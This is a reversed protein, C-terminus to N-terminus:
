TVPHILMRKKADQKIYYNMKGTKNIKPVTIVFQAGQGQKGTEQIVWGYTECIKRILYLGYGTGKGYGETFILEKESEPIGIGNDEYILKLQNKEEKYYIRLQNAYESYKITDDILNYLLQRLLSDSLLTLDECENVVKLGNLGHLMTVEQVFKKVDIYELEEIGLMEYTKAFDFIQEVKDIAEEINNLHEITQSDDAKTKLKTLYVSNAIVALKNRVDHRTFKGVVSLKENTIKLKNQSEELNTLMKNIEDALNTIEDNKGKVSVKKLHKRQSKSIEKVSSNLQALRSLITKELFLIIVISFTIGTFLLLLVFYTISSNGQNYIDRPLLAEIVFCSEGYIDEFLAYGAIINPTLTKLITNQEESFDVFAEQFNNSTDSNTFHQLSLKLQTTEALSELQISDFYRGMILSGLIPGEENSKVIPNSAIMMPGEPLLLFGNITSNTGFHQLLQKDPSLHEQVSEPISLEKETVLDFAKGYVVDGLWNVYLILNLKSGTFTEDVLNSEIYQENSNQIFEYTDDWAAWDHVFVDFNRLDASLSNRLRELDQITDQKELKTFSDLFVIQSTTYQVLILATFTLVLIIVIKKRLRM